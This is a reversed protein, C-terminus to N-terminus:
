DQVETTEFESLDITPAVPMKPLLRARVVFVREQGDLTKTQLPSVLLDFEKWLRTSGVAYGGPFNTYVIGYVDIRNTIECGFDEFELYQEGSRRRGLRVDRWYLKTIVGDSNAVVQGPGGASEIPFVSTSVIQFDGSDLSDHTKYWESRIAMQLEVACSAVPKTASSDAVAQSSRGSMTLMVLFVLCCALLPLLVLLPLYAKKRM